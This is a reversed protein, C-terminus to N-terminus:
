VVRSMTVTTLARHRWWALLGAVAGAVAAVALADLAAVFRVHVLGHRLTRCAEGGVGYRPCHAGADGVARYVQYAADALALAGVFCLLLVTAKAARRLVIGAYGAGAAAFRFRSV